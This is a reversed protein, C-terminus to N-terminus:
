RASDVGPKTAILMLKPPEAKDLISKLKVQFMPRSALVYTAVPLTAKLGEYDVATMLWYVEQGSALAQVLEEPQYYEFVPRRLYFVMSPSALRYYGVKAEPSANAQIIECLPRVPKFREFDPLTRLVFVWNFAIVTAASAALAIFEKRLLGCSISALGGAIAVAGILAAGDFRFAQASHSFLYLVGAGAAATVLGLIALSWRVVAFASKAQDRNIFRALLGSILAAAAPYIPLIYLDEKNRSLSFFGVIVAVWILLLSWMPQGPEHDTQNAALQAVGDAEEVLSAPKRFRRAWQVASKLRSRMAILVVAVLLVSWPFMDGLVVPVYFFLGRRPGWVPQTYRSLNDKLIFTEIYSWGHQGYIAAYWPLVIIAVILAGVPLMMERWRALQREIALYILIAIAPLAIAVPGKTMVGLGASLYMLVLYLRRRRPQSEALVFFVLALSMFMALYVDIMIRRSFMLFRPAIALALAALWGAEISFSVWGLIFAAAIMVMAALAITLREVTASVGFLKYFLAVIWYCLPPKNFRPQYNFSPNVLDGSELMERPTETYFAENSDWLSSAGLRIFYPAAALLLLIMLVARTRTHSTNM